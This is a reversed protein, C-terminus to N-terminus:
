AGQPGFQLRVSSRHQEGPDPAPLWRRRARVLYKGQWTPTVSVGFGQAGPNLFWNDPGSSTFYEVFGGLSYPTKDFQYNAFLAAGFNSSNATLGVSPTKKAWVYQAEPVITLNGSTFSYYGGIVSSNAFPAGSTPGFGVYSSNYPTTASGYIHAGSGTTGLNTSGFLSLSNSDNITYTALMQLYNWEQTDFGDGFTITGSVPGFTVTASVGTSQSNEVAFMDTTLVNFNNWDIGSNM